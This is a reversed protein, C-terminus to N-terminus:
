VRLLHKRQPNEEPQEPQSVAPGEGFLKILAQDLTPEMVLKEGFGAIIRKLEPLKSNDAQL